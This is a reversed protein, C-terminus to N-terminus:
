DLMTNVAGYLVEPTFPKRLFSAAALGAIQTETEALISASVFLFPIDRWDHHARVAELLQLGSMGPMTVDTIILEPPDPMVTRLAELAAQGSTVARVDHGAMSLIQDMAELLAKDDEVVLLRAM